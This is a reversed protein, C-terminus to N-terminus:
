ETITVIATGSTSNNNCDYVQNINFVIELTVCDLSSPSNASAINGTANQVSFTWTTGNCDLVYITTSCPTTTSYRWTGDSSQYTLTVSNPLITLGGTKNTFSATLTKNVPNAATCCDTEVTDVAGTGSGPCTESVEVDFHGVCGAFSFFSYETGGGTRSLTFPDCDTVVMATNFGGDSDSSLELVWRNDGVQTTQGGQFLLVTVAIGCVTGTGIYYCPCVGDHNDQVLNLEIEWNDLCSCDGSVTSSLRFVVCVTAPYDVGSCSCTGCAGSPCDCCGIDTVTGIAGGPLVEVEQLVGSLCRYRYITQTLIPPPQYIAINDATRVGVLKALYYIDEALIESNPTDVWVTEQETYSQDQADFDYRKGPYRGATKTTSTIQVWHTETTEPLMEERSSVGIAGIEDVRRITDKIKRGLGM